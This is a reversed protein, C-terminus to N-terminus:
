SEDADAHERYNGPEIYGDEIFGDDEDEFPQLSLGTDLVEDLEQASTDTQETDLSFNSFHGTNFVSHEVDERLRQNRYNFLLKYWSPSKVACVILMSTSLTLAVVGLLFKWSHSGTPTDPTNSRTHKGKSSSNVHSSNFSKYVMDSSLFWSFPENECNLPNDKLDLSKLNRVGKFIDKDLTQLSNARLTLIELNILKDFAGPPLTQILNYSLDLMKIRLYKQLTNIDSASMVLSKNSLIWGTINTPTDEPIETLSTNSMDVQVCITFQKEKHLRTGTTVMIIGYNWTKMVYDTQKLQSSLM